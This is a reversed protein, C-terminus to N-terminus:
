QLGASITAVDATIAACAAQATAPDIALRITYKRMRLAGLEQLASRLNDAQQVILDEAEQYSLGAPEAFSVIWSSAEGEYGAAVFARAAAERAEYEAEFRMWRSYVGAVLEDVQDSLQQRLQALDIEPEPLPEAPVIVHTQYWEGEREELPGPMLLETAPDFDPAPDINVVTYGCHHFDILSVDQPLIHDRSASALFEAVSVPIGPADLKMLIM